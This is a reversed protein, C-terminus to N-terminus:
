DSGDPAIKAVVPVSGDDTQHRVTRHPYPIEIGERDFRAKLRRRLEGMLRWQEGIRVDGFVKLIVASEGLDNVRLVYPPTAIDDPCDNMLEKCVENVIPIVRDLDEDYSVRVDLNIRSYGMTMNTAVVIASNPIFHVEGGLDRLVTRRPNIDE